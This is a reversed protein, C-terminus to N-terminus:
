TNLVNFATSVRHMAENAKESKNRDPHVAISLKHFARKVQSASDDRKVRLVQEPYRCALVREVEWVGVAAEARELLEKTEWRQDVKLGAQELFHQLDWTSLGLFEKPPENALAGGWLSDVRSSYTPAVNMYLLVSSGLWTPRRGRPKEVSATASHMPTFFSGNWIM